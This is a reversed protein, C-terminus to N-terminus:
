PMSNVARNITLFVSRYEFTKEVVVLVVIGYESLIISLPM